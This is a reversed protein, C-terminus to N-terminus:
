VLGGQAAFTTYPVKKSGWQPPPPLHRGKRKRDGYQIVGNGSRTVDTPRGASIPDDLIAVPFPLAAM